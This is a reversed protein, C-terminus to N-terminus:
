IKQHNTYSGKDILSFLLQYLISYLILQYISDRFNSKEIQKFSHPCFVREDHKQTM